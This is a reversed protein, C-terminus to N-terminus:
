AYEELAPLTSFCRGYNEVRNFRHPFFGKDEVDLGFAQPMAALSMQTMLYSDNLKIQGHEKGPEILVTFYKNGGLVPRVIELASFCLFFGLSM